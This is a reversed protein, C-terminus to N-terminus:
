PSSHVCAAISTIYCAWVSHFALKGVLLLNIQNQEHPLPGSRGRSVRIRVLRSPAGSQLFFMPSAPILHTVSEMSSHLPISDYVDYETLSFCLSIQFELFSSFLQFASSSQGQSTAARRAANPMPRELPFSSRGSPEAFSILITSFALM